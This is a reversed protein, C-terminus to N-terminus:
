LMRRWWTHDAGVEVGDAFAEDVAQRVGPFKPLNDYDHGGLWGGHKVKDRWLAIDEKVAEYTHEADIFVYDLSHNEIEKAAEKSYMRMIPARERFRKALEVVRQYANEFDGQTKKQVVGPTNAYLSNKAPVKWADIMIHTALPRKMLVEKATAGSWVGIEAGRTPVSVPIRAILEEWRRSKGNQRQWEARHAALLQERINPKGRRAERKRQREREQEIIEKSPM